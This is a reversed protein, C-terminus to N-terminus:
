RWTRSSFFFCSLSLSIFDSAWPWVALLYFLQSEFETRDPSKQEVAWAQLPLSPYLLCCPGWCGAGWLFCTSLSLIAPDMFLM